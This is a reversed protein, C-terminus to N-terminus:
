EGTLDRHNNGKIQEARYLNARGVHSALEYVFEAFKRDVTIVVSDTSM